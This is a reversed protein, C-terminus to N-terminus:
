RESRPERRHRHHEYYARLVANMRSQYGPGQARFWDVMDADLRMTLHKKPRPAHVEVTAWDIPGTEADPDAAIRRELEDESMRDLAAWDTRDEGHARMRSIEEATYAVTRENKRM